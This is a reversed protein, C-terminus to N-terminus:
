PLGRRKQLHNLEIIIKAIENLEQAIELQEEKNGAKVKAAIKRINRVERPEM